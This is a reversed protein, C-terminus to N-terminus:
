LLRKLRGPTLDCQKLIKGLTGKRLDKNHMPVSVPPSKDDKYLIVHSGTQHDVYYGVRKLAKILQKPKIVPLKSM